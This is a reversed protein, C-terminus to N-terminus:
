QHLVLPLKTPFIWLIPPSPPSVRGTSWSACALALRPVGRSVPGSSLHASSQKALFGEEGFSRGKILPPHGRNIPTRIPDIQDNPCYGGLQRVSWIPDLPRSELSRSEPPRSKRTISKVWFDIGPFNIRLFTSRGLIRGPVEMVRSYIGWSM